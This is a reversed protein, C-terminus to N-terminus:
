PRVFSFGASAVRSREVATISVTFRPSITRSTRPLPVRTGSTVRMTGAGASPRTSRIRRFAPMSTSEDVTMTSSEFGWSSCDAVSAEKWTFAASASASFRFTLSSLSVIVWLALIAVILACYLWAFNCSSVSSSNNLNRRTGSSVIFIERTATWSRAFRSLTSCSLNATWAFDVFACIFAAAERKSWNRAIAFKLRWSTSANFTRAPVPPTSWCTITVSPWCTVGPNLM